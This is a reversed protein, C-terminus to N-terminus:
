HLSTKLVPTCLASSEVLHSSPPSIVSNVHSWGSCAQPLGAWGRIWWLLLISDGPHALSPWVRTVKQSEKRRQSGWELHTDGHGTRNCPTLHPPLFILWCREGEMEREVGGGPMGPSAPWRGWPASAGDWLIDPRPLSQQQATQSYFHSSPELTLMEDGLRCRNQRMPFLPPCNNKRNHSSQGAGLVYELVPSNWFSSEKGEECRNGWEKYLTEEKHSIELALEPCLLQSLSWLSGKQKM